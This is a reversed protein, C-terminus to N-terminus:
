EEKESLRKLEEVFKEIGGGSILTVHNEIALALEKIKTKIKSSLNDDSLWEPNELISTIEKVIPEGLKTVESTANEYEDLRVFLTKARELVTRISEEFNPQGETLNPQKKM